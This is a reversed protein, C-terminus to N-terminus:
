KKEKIKHVTIVTYSKANVTIEFDYIRIYWNKGRQEINSKPNEILEKCWSVVDNTKLEANRKIRIIGLETTHLKDLNSLLEKTM